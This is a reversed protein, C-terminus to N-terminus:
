SRRQSREDGLWRGAAPHREDVAVFTGRLTATVKGKVKLTSEVVVRSGSIEVAKAELVLPGMRTPRLFNVLISATVTPPPSDARNKRMLAYAGAWNSHCDLITSIIGGNLFEGFAHHRPSPTWRGVVSEGEVFSLIKLGNRNAPGCGFLRRVPRVEGPPEEIEDLRRDIRM